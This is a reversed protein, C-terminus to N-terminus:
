RNVGHVTSGPWSEGCCGRHRLLADRDSALPFSARDAVPLGPQVLPLIRSEENAIDDALDGRLQVTRPERERLRHRGGSTESEVRAILYSVTLAGQGGGSHRAPAYYLTAWVALAGVVLVGTSVLAPTM